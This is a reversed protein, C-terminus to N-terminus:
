IAVPLTDRDYAEAFRGLGRYRLGASSIREADLV